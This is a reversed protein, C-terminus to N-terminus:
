DFLMMQQAQPYVSRLVRERTKRSRFLEYVALKPSEEVVRQVIEIGQTVYEDREAPLPVKVGKANALLRIAYLVHWNGYPLWSLERLVGQSSRALEAEKQRRQDVESSIEWVDVLEDLNYHEHFVDSYMSGFIEDSQVRAREPEGLFYSLIVQGLKFADIRQVAMKDSHQGKKREYFYGKDLFAGELKIQIEDNSHLDRELIRAQSNTAVAVRRSIDTQSTEYVKILLLVNQARAPNRQYAQFLAHSTQAGNVVQLGEVSLQPSRVGRNYSFKQCTITIGNNQYWFLHNDESTASRFIDGNYGGDLGLFVRINDDFIHRKISTLDDNCILKLYSLADVCAVAGRIDGDSRDFIQHDVVQLQGSVTEREPKYILRAIEHFGVEEYSIWDYRACFDEIIKKGSPALHQGNSVLYIKYHCYQGSDFYANIQEIKQGLAANVSASLGASRDFLDQLFAVIKYVETEPFNKACGEIKTHYKFQFLSVTPTKPDDQIYVADIGRDGVGDTVLDTSPENKKPFLCDLALLQFAGPADSAQGTLQYEGLRADIISHELRTIAHMQASYRSDPRSWRAVFCRYEGNRM